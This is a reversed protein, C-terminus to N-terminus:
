AIVISKGENAMSFGMREIILKANEPRLLFISLAIPMKYMKLGKPIAYNDM